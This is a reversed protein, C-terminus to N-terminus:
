PLRWWLLLTRNSLWWLLLTGNFLWLLMTGSLLHILHNRRQQQATLNPQNWRSEMSCNTSIWHPEMTNERNNLLLTRRTGDLNWQGTLQSGTLSWRIKKTTSSPHTGMATGDFLLNLDGRMKKTTMPGMTNKKTTSTGDYKRQQQTLSPHTGMSTGGFLLNLDWRIKKTTLNWRVDV